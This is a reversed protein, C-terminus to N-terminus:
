VAIAHLKAGNVRLWGKHRDTEPCLERTLNWFRRSHNMEILHAVEHAALYDLVDPPAMIIRWSFSLTPASSCSGWRSTTDTIRLRRPRVDIKECHRMVAADLEKRAERKLWIVLKRGISRSDGPVILVPVGEMTTVEILGRTKGSSAVRHDVGRFPIKSGEVLKIRKPLRGLRAAVWAHNKAVFAEIEDDSVHSPVTVKLGDAGPAIRLILRKARDNELIRVPLVRGEVEVTFNRDRQQLKQFFSLGM